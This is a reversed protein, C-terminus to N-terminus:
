APVFAAKPTGLLPRSSPGPDVVVPGDGEAPPCTDPTLATIAVETCSGEGQGVSVQAGAAPVAVDVQTPPESQPGTTTPGSPSQDAGNDLHGRNSSTSTTRRLARLTTSTSDAFPETGYPSATGFTPSVFHPAPAGADNTALALSLFGGVTLSIAAALLPRRASGLHLPAEM